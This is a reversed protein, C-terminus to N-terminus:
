DKMRAKAKAKTRRLFRAKDDACRFADELSIRGNKFLEELCADMSYGTGSNEMVMLLGLRSVLGERLVARSATDLMLLETAMVQTPGDKEPVLQLRLVCNLVAALTNRIRQVDYSPYFNFARILAAQIDRANLAAIVLCGGEAARLALDFSRPSSVDAVVLVDPDESIAAALGSEYDVTDRGVRRFIVEFNGQDLEYEQNEDLVIVFQPDGKVIQALISAMTSTIGAGMEGTLLILGKQASVCDLIEQSLGAAEVDRVAAPHLRVVACAGNFHRFATMRGRGVGECCFEQTVYRLDALRDLVDPGMYDLLFQWMEPSQLPEDDIPRLQGQVRVMAPQGESLILETANIAGAACMLREIGSSTTDIPPLEGAWRVKQMTLLEDLDDQTIIDQEVLIQGLPRTGGTLTQLELCRELDDERILDGELLLAGLRTNNAIQYAM